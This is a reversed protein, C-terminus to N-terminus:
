VCVTYPEGFFPLLAEACELFVKTPILDDEELVIAGFQCTSRSFFTDCKRDQAIDQQQVNVFMPRQNQNAIARSRITHLQPHTPTHFDPIPPTPPSHLQVQTPTHTQPTPSPPPSDHPSNTPTIFVEPSGHASIEINEKSQETAKSAENKEKEKDSKSHSITLHTPLSSTPSHQKHRPRQLRAEDDSASGRKARSSIGVLCIFFCHKIYLRNLQM